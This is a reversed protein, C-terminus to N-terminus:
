SNGFWKQYEALSLPTSSDLLMTNGDVYDFYSQFAFNGNEVTSGIGDVYTPDNDEQCTEDTESAGRQVDTINASM